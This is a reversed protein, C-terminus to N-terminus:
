RQQSRDVTKPAWYRVSLWAPRRWRRSLALMGVGLPLLSVGAAFGMIFPVPQRSVWWLGALMLPYRWLAGKWWWRWAQSTNASLANAMQQLAWLVLAAFVAGVLYGAAPLWQEYRWLLYGGLAATWAISRYAVRLEQM